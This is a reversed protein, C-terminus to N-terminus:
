LAEKKRKKKCAQKLLKSAQAALSLTFKVIKIKPEELHSNKAITKQIQVKLAISNSSRHGRPCHINSDQVITSSKLGGKAEVNIANQMM